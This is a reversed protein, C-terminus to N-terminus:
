RRVWRKVYKAFEENIWRWERRFSGGTEHSYHLGEFQRLIDARPLGDIRRAKHGAWHILAQYPSKVLMKALDVGNMEDETWWMFPVRDISLSGEQCRRSAVYNFMGQDGNKFIEPRKLRPPNRDTLHPTFEERAFTGANGVFQGTNFTIGQFKFGPDLKGLRALDFYIEAVREPTQSEAAVVLDAESEELLEIVPGVFAIDSDLVLFRCPAPQFFPELKSLGWGFSRGGTDLVKVGWIRELDRTSFDGSYSDKLLHIPIDPYWYRISSVCVRAFAVDFRHTAIYIRDIKM